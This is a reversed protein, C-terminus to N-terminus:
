ESLNQQMTAHYPGFSNKINRLYNLVTKPDSWLFASDIAIDIQDLITVKIRSSMLATQLELRLMTFLKNKMPALKSKGVSLRRSTSNRHVVKIYAATVYAESSTDAFIHM